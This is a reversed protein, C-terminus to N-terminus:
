AGEVMKFEDGWRVRALAELAGMANFWRHRAEGNARAYEKCATKYADRYVEPKQYAHDARIVDRILHIQTEGTHPDNPM